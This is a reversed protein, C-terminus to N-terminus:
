VDARGGQWRIALSPGPATAFTAKLVSSRTAGGRGAALAHLKSGRRVFYQFIRTSPDVIMVEKVGIAAYFSLKLFSEDNPSRIEALWEPAGEVGRESELDPQYIVLDPVRYDSDGHPQRYVGIDHGIEFGLREAVPRLAEQLRGEFKQHRPSPPPVMHLVGEWVEDWRDQGRRRREDLLEPPPDLMLARM